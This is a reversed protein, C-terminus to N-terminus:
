VPIRQIQKRHSHRYKIVYAEILSQIKQPNIEGSKNHCIKPVAKRMIDKYQEKTIHKKNYHPKLVLKVEDIVREQRNLKELFKNKSELEVASSPLDDINDDSSANNQKFYKSKSLFKPPKMNKIILSDFVNAPKSRPLISLLTDLKSRASEIKSQPQPIAVNKPAPTPSEPSSGKLEDVFGEGPSYPSDAENDFATTQSDDNDLNIIEDDQATVPLPQVVPSPAKTAPPSTYLSSSATSTALKEPSIKDPQVPIELPSTMTTTTTTKPSTSSQEDVAKSEELPQITTNNHDDEFMDIRPPSPSNSKTPEFPDYATESATTDVSRPPEPPTNPGRGRVDISKACDEDVNNFECSNKSISDSKSLVNTPEPPTKPGGSTTTSITQTSCENKEVPKQEIVNNEKPKEPSIDKKTDQKTVQKDEDSDTLVIVNKPSVPLERFPSTNLDIIAVPKANVIELTRTIKKRNLGRKIAKQNATSVVSTTSITKSKKISLVTTTEQRKRKVPEQTTEESVSDKNFNVSILINDGSAYVEKSPPVAIQRTTHRKTQKSKKTSDNKVIVTLNDLAALNENYEPYDQDRAPYSMDLDTAHRGYVPSPTRSIDTHSWACDRPSQWVQIRSSISRSPSLYQDKLKKKTKKKSSKNNKQLKKEYDKEIKSYISAKEKSKKTNRKPPLPSLEREDYLAPSRYREKLQGQNKDHKNSHKFSKSGHRSSSRHRSRSRHKSISRHRSRSRHRSNSRHRSRSRYREKSESRYRSRSPKRNRPKIPSVSRRRQKSHSRKNKKRKNRDRSDSDSHSSKSLDRGFKDKKRRPRDELVRRVDYLEIEKRKQKKEKNKDNEEGIKEKGKGYRYNRDKSNKSLKKWPISEKNSEKLKMKTNHDLDKKDENKGNSLKEKNNVANSSTNLGKSKKKDEESDSIPDLSLDNIVEKVDSDSNNIIECSVESPMDGILIEDEKSVAEDINSEIASQTEALDSNSDNNIICDKNKSEKTLNIIDANDDDSNNSKCEEEAGSNDSIVCTDDDLSTETNTKLQIENFELDEGVLKSKLNKDQSVPPMPIDQFDDEGKSADAECEEHAKPSNSLNLSATSYLSINPCDDNTEKEDDDSSLGEDHPLMNNTQNPIFPLSSTEVQEMYGGYTPSQMYTTGASKNVDTSEDIENPNEPDYYDNDDIVLNDAEDEDLNIGMLLAPPEPPPELAKFSETAQSSSGSEDEVIIETTVPKPPTQSQKKEGLRTVNMRFKIPGSNRFPFPNVPQNESFNQNAPLQHDDYSSSNGVVESHSENNNRPYNRSNNRNSSYNNVNNTNRDSHHDSYMPTQTTHKDVNKMENEMTKKKFEKEQVNMITDLINISETNHSINVNKRVPRRLIESIEKRSVIDATSFRIRPVTSMFLPGDGGIDNESDSELPTYDLEYHNGLISLSTHDVFNSFTNSSMTNSSDSTRNMQTSCTGLREALMSNNKNSRPKKAKRFKNTKIKRKRYKRNRCVKKRTNSSLMVGEAVTMVIQQLRRTNMRVRESARTRPVLRPEQQRSIRTRRGRTVQEDESLDNLIDIVEDEDIDNDSEERSRCQPCYWEELPVRSLPPNLCDMHYGCDCIDCLLMEDERNSLHCVKLISECYTLDDVNNVQTIKENNQSVDIESLVEGFVSRVIIFKFDLRDIPCTKANKAWETICNLCFSHLCSNPSAVNEEGLRTLCIPCKASEGDSSSSSSEEDSEIVNQKRRKNGTDLDSDSDGSDGM